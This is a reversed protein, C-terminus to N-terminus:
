NQCLLVFKLKTLDRSNVMQKMIPIVNLKCKKIDYLLKILRAADEISDNCEKLLVYEFTLWTNSQETYKKSADLLDVLANKKTIPMIAKRQENTTGNLSIALKFKEKEKTFREIKGIVGATSITIRKYGMNIGNPNHLLHASKIVNRYNLFPEGMGMFVINTIQKNIKQSIMLYQDVIEGPKLNEKFGMKATACFKCDLACGVQTSLCLTVRDDDNMLVSEILAGSQTKFLFKNTLESTSKTARVFTLPHICYESRLFTILEKPLNNFADFDNVKNRYLWNFLQKARFSKVDNDECIKVLGELSKGILSTKDTKM